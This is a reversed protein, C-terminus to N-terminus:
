HFVVCRRFGPNGMEGAAQLLGVPPQNEDIYIESYCEDAAIVFDFREAQEMLWGLTQTNITTRTPNGPSCLYILECRKWVDKSVSRFDSQYERDRRAAVFYPRAGRLLAAGEYIQYFPNPLVVLSEPRGSLVAQGFSFLAERTGAVPLIQKEPDVQVSFRRKLWASIAERLELTGRTSPYASLDTALRARDALVDLVFEPPPHKPEGISLAVPKYAPDPTLGEKLASLREFPYSQLRDIYPNM